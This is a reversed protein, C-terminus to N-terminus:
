LNRFAALQDKVPRAGDFEALKAANSGNGIPGRGYTNTGGNPSPTPAGAKFFHPKAERFASIAEDIGTVEYTEPDVVIGKRDILKVVDTDVADGMRARLAEELLRNEIQKDKRKTKESDLRREEKLEALHKELDGAKRASEEREKEGDAKRTADAEELTRLQTRYKAADDRARRLETQLQAETLGAGPPAIVPEVIPEEAM